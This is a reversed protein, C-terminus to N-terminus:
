KGFIYLYHFIDKSTETSKNFSYINHAKHYFILDFLLRWMVRVIHTLQKNCGEWIAPSNACMLLKESLSVDKILLCNVLIYM